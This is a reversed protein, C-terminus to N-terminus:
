RRNKGSESLHSQGVFRMPHDGISSGQREVVVVRALLHTYTTRAVNYSLPKSKYLKNDHCSLM